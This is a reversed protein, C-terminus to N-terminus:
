RKVKWIGIYPDGHSRYLIDNISLSYKGVRELIRHSYDFLDGSGCNGKEGIWILHRVSPYELSKISGKAGPMEWSQIVVDPNYKELAQEYTLKEVDENYDFNWNHSDTPIIDIGYRQLFRSLYGVGANLEIVKKPNLKKIEDALNEVFEKNLLQYSLRLKKGNREAFSQNGSKSYYTSIEDLIKKKDYTTLSDVANKVEIYNPLEDKELYILFDEKNM